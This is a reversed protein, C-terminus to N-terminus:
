LVKRKREIAAAFTLVKKLSGFKKSFFNSSNESLRRATPYESLEALRM